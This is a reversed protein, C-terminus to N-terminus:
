RVTEVVIQSYTTYGVQMSFCLISSTTDGYANEKHQLILIGKIIPNQEESEMMAAAVQERSPHM